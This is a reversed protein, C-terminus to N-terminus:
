SWRALRTEEIFHRTTTDSLYVWGTGLLVSGTVVEARYLGSLAETVTTEWAGLGQVSKTLVDGSSGNVPTSSGGPEYLKLTPSSISDLDMEVEVPTAAM